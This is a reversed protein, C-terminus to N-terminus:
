PAKLGDNKVKEYHLQNESFLTLTSLDGIAGIESIIVYWKLIQYKIDFYLLNKNKM